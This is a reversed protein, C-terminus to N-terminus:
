RSIAGMLAALDVTHQEGGPGDPRWTATDGEPDIEVVGASLGVLGPTGDIRPSLALALRQGPQLQPSGPVHTGLDVLEGGVLDLDLATTGEGVLWRDVTLTAHRHVRGDAALFPEVSDVRAVVVADAVGFTHL